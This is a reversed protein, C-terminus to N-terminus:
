PECIAEEAPARAEEPGVRGFQGTYNEAFVTAEARSTVLLAREVKRLRQAFASSDPLSPAADTALPADYDGGGNGGGGTPPFTHLLETLWWTFREARWVHALAAPSYGDLLRPSGTAFFSAFADSLLAADAAALNLGKAGATHRHSCASHPASAAPHSADGTPPVIHAADGCLFLSGFRMPEAVFSRLPAISKEITAGPVVRSATVPDLRRKLENFFSDDDWDSVSDSLPM